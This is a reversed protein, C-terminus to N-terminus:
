IKTFHESTGYLAWQYGDCIFSFRVEKTNVEDNNEIYIPEYKTRREMKDADAPTPEPLSAFMRNIEAQTVQM